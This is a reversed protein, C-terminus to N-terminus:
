WPYTLAKRAAEPELHIGDIPQGSAITKLANREEATLGEPFWGPITLRMVVPLPSRLPWNKRWFLVVERLRPDHRSQKYTGRLRHEAASLPKRGAGPRAGGWGNAM